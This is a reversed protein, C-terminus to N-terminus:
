ESDTKLDPLLKNKEKLEKIYENGEDTLDDSSIKTNKSMGKKFEKMGKNTLMDNDKLEFFLKHFSKYVDEIANDKEYTSVSLEAEDNESNDSIEKEIEEASETYLKPQINGLKKRIEDLVSTKVTENGINDIKNKEETYAKSLEAKIERENASPNKSKFSAIKSQITKISSSVLVSIRNKLKTEEKAKEKEKREAEEKEYNLNNDYNEKREKIMQLQENYERPTLKGESKLKKLRKTEDDVYSELYPAYKKTIKCGMEIYTSETIIGSHYQETVVDILKDYRDVQTNM